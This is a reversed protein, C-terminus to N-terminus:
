KKLITLVIIGIRALLFTVLGFLPSLLSVKLGGAMVGSSIDGVRQITDFAQILGLIQGMFGWAVAFLGFSALLSTIKSNDGKRNLVGKVTLLIIVILVILITYM